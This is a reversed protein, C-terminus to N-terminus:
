AHFLCGDNMCYKCWPGPLYRKERKHAYVGEIPKVQILSVKNEKGRFGLYSIISLNRSSPDSKLCDIYLSLQIIDAQHIKYLGYSKVEVVVVNEGSVCYLDIKGGSDMNKCYVKKEKECKYGKSEFYKKVADVTKNHDDTKLVRPDRDYESKYYDCYRESLSSAIDKIGHFASGQLLL